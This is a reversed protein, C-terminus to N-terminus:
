VDLHLSSRVATYSTPKPEAEKVLFETKVRETEGLALLAQFIRGGECYGIAGILGAVAEQNIPKTHASTRGERTHDGDGPGSMHAGLQRAATRVATPAQAGIDHSPADSLAEGNSTSADSGVPSSSDSDPSESSAAPTDNSEVDEDRFDDSVQTM